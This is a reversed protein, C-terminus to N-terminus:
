FASGKEDSQNSIFVIYLIGLIGALPITQKGSVKSSLEKLISTITDLNNM